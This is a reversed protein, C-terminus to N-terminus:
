DQSLWVEAEQRTTFVKGRDKINASKAVKTQLKLIEPNSGFIAGKEFDADKFIMALLHVVEEGYSLEESSDILIKVKKGKDEISMALRIIEQGLRSFENINGSGVIKIEIFGQHNIFARYTM